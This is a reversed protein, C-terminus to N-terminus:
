FIVEQGLQTWFASGAQAPTLRISSETGAMGHVWPLGMTDREIQDRREAATEDDPATFRVDVTMRYHKEAM